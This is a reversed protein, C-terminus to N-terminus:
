PLMEVNMNTLSIVVKRCLKIADVGLRGYCYAPIENELEKDVFINPIVINKHGIQFNMSNITYGENQTELAYNWETLTTPTGKVMIDRKNIDYFHANMVSNAAGLDLIVAVPSDTASYLYYQGDHMLNKIPYSPPSLKKPVVIQQERPLIQIEKCERIVAMSLEGISEDSNPDIDIPAVVFQPSTVVVDGLKIDKGVAIRCYQGTESIGEIFVSDMVTELNHRSAFQEDVMGFDTAKTNFVFKESVGDMEGEVTIIEGKPTPTYEFPMVANRGFPLIVKTQPVDKMAKAYDLTQAYYAVEEPALNSEIFEIVGNYDQVEMLNNVIQNFLIYTMDAVEENREDLLYFATQSSKDVEGFRACAVAQMIYMDTESFDYNEPRYSINYLDYFRNESILQKIDDKSVPIKQAMLSQPLAFLLAATAAVLTKKKM